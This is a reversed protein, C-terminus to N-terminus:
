VCIFSLDTCKYVVVISAVINERLFSIHLHLSVYMSVYICIHVYVYECLCVYMCVSWLSEPRPENKIGVSLLKRLRERGLVANARLEAANLFFSCSVPSWVRGFVRLPRMRECVAVSVGAAASEDEEECLSVLAKNSFFAPVSACECDDVVNRSSLFM